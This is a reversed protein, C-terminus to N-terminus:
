LNKLSANMEQSLHLYMSWKSMLTPKNKDSNHETHNPDTSTLHTPQYTPEGIDLENIEFLIRTLHHCSFNVQTHDDILDQIALVHKQLQQVVLSHLSILINTPM